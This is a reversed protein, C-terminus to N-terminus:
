KNFIIIKSSYTEEINFKNYISKTMRKRELNYKSMIDMRLKSYKVRITDVKERRGRAVEKILKDEFIYGKSEIERMIIKVFYKELKISKSTLNSDQKSMKVLGKEILPKYAQPFDQKAKEEGFLRYVLEYSISGYNVNNNLLITAIKQIRENYDANLNNPAYVNSTRVKNIDEKQPVILSQYLEKPITREDLKTILETVVITNLINRMKSETVKQGLSSSVLKTLTKISFYNLYQPHGNNDIYMYDYMFDLTANIEHAYIKLFKYLEPYTNRLEGTILEKRFLNANKKTQALNSSSDIESNTIDILIDIAQGKGINLIKAIVLLIDGTFPYSESFCKYLYIEDEKNIFVNASPEKENHFIDHFMKTDPLELIEKMDVRKFYNVASYDDAFTMKFNDGLKQKILDYQKYQILKYNPMDESIIEAKNAEIIENKVSDVIQLRNELDLIEYGQNSGYFLRSAQGVSVDSMPYKDFLYKYVERVEINSKLPEDLAFVVRFKDVSSGLDSFTKYYFCANDQIFIDQELDDITFINEPDKNDFDLMVFDQRTIEVMSNKSDSLLTTFGEEGIKKAFLEINEFEFKNNLINSSIKSTEYGNPKKTFGNDSLYVVFM